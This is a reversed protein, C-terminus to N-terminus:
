TIEDLSLIELESDQVAYIQIDIQEFEDLSPYAAESIALEMLFIQRFSEKLQTVAYVEAVGSKLRVFQNETHLRYRQGALLKM